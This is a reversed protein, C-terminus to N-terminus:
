AKKFRPYLDQVASFGFHMKIFQGGGVNVFGQEELNPRKSYGFLRKATQKILKRQLPNPDAWELHTIYLNTRADFQIVESLHECCSVINIEKFDEEVTLIKAMIEAPPCNNVDFRFAFVTSDARVIEFNYADSSSTWVESPEKGNLPLLKEFDFFKREQEVSFYNNIFSEISSESGKLVVECRFVNAM